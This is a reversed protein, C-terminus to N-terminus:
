KKANLLSNTNIPKLVQIKGEAINAYVIGNNVEVAGDPLYYSFNSQPVFGEHPAPVPTVEGTRAVIFDSTGDKTRAYVGAYLATVADFESYKIVTSKDAINIVLYEGETDQVLITYGDYYDADIMKYKPQLLLKNDKDVLGYLDNATKVVYVHKDKEYINNIYEGGVFKVKFNKDYVKYTSSDYYYDGMPFIGNMNGVSTLDDHLNGEEDILFNRETLDLTKNDKILMVNSREYKFVGKKDVLQARGSDLIAYNLKLNEQKGTMYNISVTDLVYKIGEHVFDYKETDEPVEVQRQYILHDGIQLPDIGQMPSEFSSVRKGKANMVYYHSGNVFLQYGDHGFDYLDIVAELGFYTMNPAFEGVKAEELFPYHNVAWTVENTKRNKAGYLIETDFDVYIIRYEVGKYTYTTYAAPAALSKSTSYVEEGSVCDVFHAVAPNEGDKTSYSIGFGELDVSPNSEMQQLPIFWKMNYADYVGTKPDSTKITFFRNALHTISALNAVDEADEASVQFAQKSSDLYHEEYNYAHNVNAKLVDGKLIDGQKNVTSKNGKSCAPLGLVPLLFLVYLKKNM